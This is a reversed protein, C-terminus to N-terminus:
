FRVGMIISYTGNTQYLLGPVVVDFTHQYMVGGITQSSPTSSSTSTSSTYSGSPHCDDGDHDCNQSGPTTVNTTSNSNPGYAPGVGATLSIIEKGACAVLLVALVLFIIKM